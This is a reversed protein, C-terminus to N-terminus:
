SLGFTNYVLELSSRDCIIVSRYMGDIMLKVSIALLISTVSEIIMREMFILLGSAVHIGSCIDSDMEIQVYGNM